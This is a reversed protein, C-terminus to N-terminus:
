VATPVAPDGAMMRRLRDKATREVLVPVYDRIPNGELLRHTEEVVQEVQTRGLAPFRDTLRDIVKAIGQVEQIHDMPRNQLM